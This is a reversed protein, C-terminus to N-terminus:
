LPLELCFRAGGWPSTGVAIRGGHGRVIQQTLALGLGTGGEKTSFFPDFIKGAVDGSIGPGDDDVVVEVGTASRRTEIRVRGGGRGAVADAANRLLNLLAQRIQAEDIRTTPLEPALAIELAVGRQALQEREFQALSEVVGGIPEPQLKPTPLRALHLYEETIATLRDVETHIARCLARAEDGGAGPVAGLEEDLLETNLGIASLPNRVEHAIMAAMKGVAALRESRVLDREREEVARGMANFERALGAVESPGQEALRGAYDGQAIHRAAERLQRLPRLTVVSWMTVVLGLFVAISGLFIALKRLRAENHELDWATQDVLDKQYKSFLWMSNYLRGEQERLRGLNRRARAMVDDGLAAGDLPIAELLAAYLPEQREVALRFGVLWRRIQRVVADHRRPVDGLEAALKEADRLLSGRNSRYGRLRAEVRAVAVEAPIDDLYLRLDNQKEVLDKARLALPVYGTRIVRIERALRHMSVITYLSVGGFALTLLAFALVIRGSISRLVSWAM